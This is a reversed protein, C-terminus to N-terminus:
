GLGEICGCCLYPPGVCSSTRMKENFIVFRKIDLEDVRCGLAPIVTGDFTYRHQQKWETCVHVTLTLGCRLWQTGVKCIVSLFNGEDSKWMGLKTTFLKRQRPALCDVAEETLELLDLM